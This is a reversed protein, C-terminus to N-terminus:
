VSAATDGLFDSLMKKSTSLANVEKVYVTNGREVEQKAIQLDHDIVWEIDELEMKGLTAQESKSWDYKSLKRQIERSTEVLVTHDIESKACYDPSHKELTNQLNERLRTLSETTKERTPSLIKRFKPIKKYSVSGNEGISIKLFRDKGSGSDFYSAVYEGPEVDAGLNEAFQEVLVDNNSTLISFYLQPDLDDKSGDVNHQANMSKEFAARAEEASSYHESDSGFPCNGKVARCAGAEGSDTNIHFRPM